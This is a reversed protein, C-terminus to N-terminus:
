NMFDLYESELHTIQYMSLNEVDLFLHCPKNGVEKFLTYASEMLQHGYKLCESKLGMEVLERGKWSGIPINIV